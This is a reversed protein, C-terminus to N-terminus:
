QKRLVMVAEGGLAAMFPAVGFVAHDIRELAITASEWAPLVRCLRSAVGFKRLEALPFIRQIIEVDARNLKREDETRHHEVSKGKPFFTQVLRSERLRDFAPFEIWERFIAIGGPKLVRHTERISPEIELHHLIDIGLICDFSNDQYDLNEAIQVSFDTRDAFGYEAARLRASEIQKESVDFGSVRYGVKAMCIAQQGTGCGFDLLTQSTDHFHDLAVQNAHWYSNWPRKETGEVPAFNVPMKDHVACYDDYYERERKQRDTLKRESLALGESGPIEQTKCRLLFLATLEAVIARTLLRIRSAGDLPSLLTKQRM